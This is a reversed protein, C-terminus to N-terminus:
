VEKDAFYPQDALTQADRKYSFTKVIRDGKMVAWSCYTMHYGIYLDSDKYTEVVRLNELYTM